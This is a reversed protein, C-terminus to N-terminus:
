GTTRMQICDLRLWDSLKPLLSAMQTAPCPEMSHDYPWPGLFQDSIKGGIPLRHHCLQKPSPILSHSGATSHLVPVTDQAGENSGMAAERSIHESDQSDPVVM